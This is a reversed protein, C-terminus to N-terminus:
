WENPPASAPPPPPPRPVRTAELHRRVLRNSKEQLTAIAMNSVGGDINKPKVAGEVTMGGVM